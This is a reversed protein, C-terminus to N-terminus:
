FYIRKGEKNRVEFGNAEVGKRMTGGAPFTVTCFKGGKWEVACNEATEESAAPHKRSGGWELWKVACGTWRTTNVKVAQWDRLAALTGGAEANEDQDHEDSLDEGAALRLLVDGDYYDIQNYHKSSHHWECPEMIAKIAGTKVKLKKALVSAPFCNRSEAEVANNSKSFGNYGSM